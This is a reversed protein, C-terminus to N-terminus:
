DVAVSADLLAQTLEALRFPKSIVPVLNFGEEPGFILGLDLTMEETESAIRVPANLNQGQLMRIFDISAILM